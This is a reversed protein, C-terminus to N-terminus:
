DYPTWLHTNKHVLDIKLGFDNIVKSYKELDVHNCFLSIEYYPCDEHHDESEKLVVQDSYENKLKIANKIKKSIDEYNSNICVCEIELDFKARLKYISELGELHNQM